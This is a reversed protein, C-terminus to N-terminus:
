GVGTASFSEQESPFRVKHGSLHLLFLCLLPGFGESPGSEKMETLCFIYSLCYKWIKYVSCFKCQFILTSSLIFLFFYAHRRGTLGLYYAMQFANEGALSINWVSAYKFKCRCMVTRSVMQPEESSLFAQQVLECIQHEGRNTTARLTHALAVATAQKNQEVAM